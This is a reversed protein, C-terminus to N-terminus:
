VMQGPFLDPVIRFSRPGVRANCSSLYSM